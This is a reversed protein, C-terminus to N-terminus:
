QTFKLAKPQVSNRQTPSFIEIIEWKFFFIVVFILIRLVITYESYDNLCLGEARVIRAYVFLVSKKHEFSTLITRLSEGLSRHSMIGGIDIAFIIELNTQM